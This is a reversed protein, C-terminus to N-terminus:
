IKFRLNSRADVLHLTKRARTAGVYFTRIEEDQSSFKEIKPSTELFLVVNDAEGGKARHITSVEIRPKDVGLISNGRGM